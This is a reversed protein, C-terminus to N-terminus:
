VSHMWRQSPRNMISRYLTWKFSFSTCAHAFPQTCLSVVRENTVGSQFHRLHGWLHWHFALNNHEQEVSCWEINFNMMRPKSIAWCNLCRGGLRFVQIWDGPTVHCFSLTLEGLSDEKRWVWSLCHGCVYVWWAHEPSGIHEPAYFPKHGLNVSGWSGRPIFLSGVGLLPGRDKEQPVFM